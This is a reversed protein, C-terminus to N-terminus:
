AEEGFEVAFIGGNEQEGTEVPAVGPAASGSGPAPVCRGAEEAVPEPLAVEGQRGAPHFAPGVETHFRDGAGDAAPRSIVGVGGFECEHHGIGMVERKVFLQGGGMRDIEVDVVVSEIPGRLRLLDRVNLSPRDFFGSECGADGLRPGVLKSALKRVEGRPDEMERMTRRLRGDGVRGVRAGRGSGVVERGDGAGPQAIDTGEFISDIPIQEVLEGDMPGVGGDDQDAARFRVVCGLLPVARTGSCQGAGVDAAQTPAILRSDGGINGGEIDAQDGVVDRMWEISGAVGGFDHVVHARAPGDHRGRDGFAAEVGISEM